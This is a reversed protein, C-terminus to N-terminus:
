FPLDDDPTFSGDSQSFDASASAKPTFGGKAKPKYGVEALEQPLVGDELISPDYDKLYGDVGQKIFTRRVLDKMFADDNTVYQVFARSFNRYGPKGDDKKYGVYSCTWIECGNLHDFDGEIVQDTALDIMKGEHNYALQLDHKSALGRVVEWVRFTSKEDDIRKDADLGYDGWLPFDIDFKRGEQQLKLTLIVSSPSWTERVRANYKINAAIIRQKNIFIGDKPGSPKQDALSQGPNFNSM